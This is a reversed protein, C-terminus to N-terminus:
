KQLEESLRLIGFTSILFLSAPISALLRYREEPMALREKTSVWSQARVIAMKWKKYKADREENTIKPLIANEEETNEHYHAELDIKWFGKAKGAAIAVGISTMDEKPGIM